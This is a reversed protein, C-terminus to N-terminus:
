HATADEGAVVGLHAHPHGAPYTRRVPIPRQMDFIMKPMKEIVIKTQDLNENARDIVTDSVAKMEAISEKATLAHAASTDIIQGLVSEIIAGKDKIVENAAELAETTGTVIVYREGASANKAELVACEGELRAKRVELEAIENSTSTRMREELADLEAIRGRAESISHHLAALDIGAQTGLKQKEELETSAVAIDRHLQDRQATWTEIAKVQAPTHQNM